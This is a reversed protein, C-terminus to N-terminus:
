LFGRLAPRYPSQPTSGALFYWGTYFPRYLSGCRFSMPIRPRHCHIPAPLAPSLIGRSLSLPTLRTLVHFDSRSRSGTKNKYELDLLNIMFSMNISVYVTASGISSPYMTHSSLFCFLSRSAFLLPVISKNRTWSM